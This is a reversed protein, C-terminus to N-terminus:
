STRTSRNSWNRWQGAQPISSATGRASVTAIFTQRAAACLTASRVRLPPKVAPRAVKIRHHRGDQEFPLYDATWVM